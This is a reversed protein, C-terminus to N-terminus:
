VCVCVNMRRCALVLLLLLTSNWLSLHCRTINLIFATFKLHVDPEIDLRSCYPTRIATLFPFSKGGFTPLLYYCFADAILKQRQPWFDFLVNIIFSPGQLPGAVQSLQKGAKWGTCAPIQELLLMVKSLFVHFCCIISFHLHHNFIISLSIFHCERKCRLEKGQWKESEQGKHSHAYSIPPDTFHCTQEM